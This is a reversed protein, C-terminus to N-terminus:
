GSRGDLDLGMYRREYRYGLSEYLHRAVDNTEAVELKMKRYGRSRAWEIAWTMLHRGVGKGRHEPAVWVDFVFGVPEPTLFGGGAGLLVYGLFAGAADNAVWAETRNGEVYPEIRKRFHKEWAARDLRRREDEPTDSWVTALTAQWITALDARRARQMRIDM